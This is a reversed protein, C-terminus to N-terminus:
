DRLGKEFATRVSKMSIGLESAITKMSEYEPYTYTHGSATSVQKAEIQGLETDVLTRVRTLEERQVVYYRVGITTTEDFIIESLKERTEARCIVELRYAPRNKKMFIPSYSVDLAGADMLKELVYGLDEGSSDDINSNIVIIDDNQTEGDATVDEGLFVRLTNPGGINRSGVGIGIKNLNMEPMLGYSEAFTSIIAAGTPTVLETPVEIQKFRIKENKYMMSTAPVPVSLVGHACKITGYGDSVVSSIVRDPNIYDMLIAVSVIDVISDIAGVEHFHVEDIPKGHVAAEAAAVKQFMSRSLEKAAETIGSGEIIQKIDAYTRHVHNHNHNNDNDDQHNHCHNDLSHDHEHDHYHGHSHHEPSSDLEHHHSHTHGHHLGLTASSGVNKNGDHIADVPIGTNAELVEVYTGDIGHSDRKIVNLQYGPVGLKALEDRLYQEGDCIELLAGIAMNGSIGTACDFYLIKM